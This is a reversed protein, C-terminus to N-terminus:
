IKESHIKGVYFTITREEVWLTIKVCRNNKRRKFTITFNNACIYDREGPPCHIVVGIIAEESVFRHGLLWRYATPGMEVRKAM